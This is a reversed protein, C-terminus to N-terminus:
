SVAGLYVCPTVEKEGELGIIGNTSYSLDGGWWCGTGLTLSQVRVVEMGDMEKFFVLM